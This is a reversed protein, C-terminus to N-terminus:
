KNANKRMLVQIKYLKGTFDSQEDQSLSPFLLGYRYNNKYKEVRIVQCRTNIEIEGDFYARLYLIEDENHVFESEICAGGMGINLIRCSETQSKDSSDDPDMKYLFGPQDVRLRFAARKDNIEQYSLDRIECTIRSSNRVFGTYCFPRRGRDYGRIMVKQNLELLSLSLSGPIRTLIINNNNIEQILGSLIMIGDSSFLDVEMGSQLVCTNTDDSVVDTQSDTDPDMDDFDINDIRLLKRLFNMIVM